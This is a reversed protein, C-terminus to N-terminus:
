STGDSCNCPGGGTGTYTGTLTGIISIDLVAGASADFTGGTSQGPGTELHDEIDFTGSEINITGGQNNFTTGDDIFTGTGGTKLITGANNVTGDPGVVMARSPSCPAMAENM